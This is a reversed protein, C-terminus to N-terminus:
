IDVKGHIKPTFHHPRNATRSCLSLASASCTLPPPLPLPLPLGPVAPLCAPLSVKFTIPLDEVNVQSDLDGAANNNNNSSAM